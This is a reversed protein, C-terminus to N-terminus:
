RVEKLQALKDSAKGAESSKPYLTVVQKFASSARKKDKLALYAFGKKLIAAPVKESSPYDIEVKDYADIAKQFDKKGFYSEGLWFRANPALTSNPYESLFGTFGQRAGELDGERFLTLLREYRVRDPPDASAQTTEFTPSEQPPVITTVGATAEPGGSSASAQGGEPTTENPGPTSRQAPKAGQQRPAPKNSIQEVAKLLSDIRSDQEDLRATMKQGVAELAKTVSLVSRNVEEAHIATTKSDGDLKAAVNKTAQEEEGVRDNLGTLAERFGTLAQNFQAFKQSVQEIRNHNETAEKRQEDLKVDVRKALGENTRQVVEIIDKKMAEMTKSMEDLRASVKTDQTEFSKQVWLHRTSGDTELKAALQELKKTQQELQASRHKLDEQRAQLEQTQHLVKELEGRLQPLEYERLTTIEQGQRARTQSLQQQLVKETQKLDAQQAVCGSLVAGVTAISLIVGHTARRQPKM